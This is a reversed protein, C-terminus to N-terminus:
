QNTPPSVIRQNEWSEFGEPPEAILLGHTDAFGYTKVLKGDIRQWPQKQRVVIIDNFNSANYLNTTSGQYVFEYENTAWNFDAETDPIPDGPRLGKREVADFDDRIQEWNTPFKGHHSEAFGTIAACALHHAADLRRKLVQSEETAADNTIGPAIAVANQLSVKAAEAVQRTLDGVRARLRLLEDFQERSLSQSNSSSALRNSMEENETKLQAIQQRLLQNDGRLEQQAQHQLIIATAAGVVVLSGLGIKLQTLTMFKFLAFWSGAGWAALSTNTLASALAPPAVQVANASIISALSATTTIARKTLVARLKELAREVRVRAANENLGLKTGVEAYSRNEFYRLLVAERDSAKLGHMAADLMPRLKDWDAELTCDHAPERMFEKERERRRIETRVMKNAAFYASTYLWGSLSERRSLSAAKRALDAFVTQAVDHALHADGGAQRLAASYVLNVHRKVLEAFAEESQGIAYQRLLESDPHM